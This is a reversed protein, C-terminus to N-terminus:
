DKVCRVSYFEYKSSLEVGNAKENFASIELSYAYNASSLNNNDSASWWKANYTDSQLGYLRHNPPYSFGGPLASFGYDDTGNGNEWGSKAKLKKGAVGAGGAFDVLIDWEGERPLHWDKPCAKMAMNWNYLRGYKDCFRSQDAWCKSGSADYNLNEAMWIQKGIKVVKYKKGDRSDTFVSAKKDLGIMDAVVELTIETLSPMDSFNDETIDKLGYEKTNTMANLDFIQATMRKGKVGKVSNIKTLCLFDAKNKALSVIKSDSINGKNWEKKLTERFQMDNIVIEYKDNNKLGYSIGDMLAEALDMELQGSVSIILKPKQGFVVPCLILLIALLKKM